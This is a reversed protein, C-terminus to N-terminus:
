GGSVDKRMVRALVRVGEDEPVGGYETRVGRVITAGSEDQEVAAIRYEDEGEAGPFAAVVREGVMQALDPDDVWELLLFGGKPDSVLFHHKPDLPGHERGIVLTEIDAGGRDSGVQDRRSNAAELTSFVPLAPQVGAAGVAEGFEGGVREGYQAMRLDVLDQLMAHFAETDEPAVSFTPRFYGEEKSFWAQADPGLNGGVWANIPNRSWYSHFSRPDVTDVDQVSKALDVTLRPRRRFIELSWGSLEELRPPTSFGENELLAQLLVMKFCRTMATREVERFFGEHRELCRAEADSMDRQDRVLAWWHGPDKRLGVLDAGARHFEAANPRRGLANQLAQYDGRVGAEQKAIQDALDVLELPFNVFCGDPLEIRGDVDMRERLHALDKLSSGVGLLLHPRQLFSRHNGIFDLVTLLKKEPHLRLGRGLQQLFLVSSETPRLMMVTDLAPLDVGENFLDVSFIVDLAGAGLEELASGRDKQSTGHVSVARFGASAFYEAMFDAHTRSACFALTRDGRKEKWEELVHGARLKTALKNELAGPDFRGNRWPIQGYDVSEDWIGWYGFPCLFGLGIAAFLDKCYVLNDDCLSLIDSRDTRNSTATLGLLFEPRCHRLLRRYSPAAAHHFEDVVVYDFLEPPFRDVHEARGLTQISAFLVDAEAEKRTGDYRGMRKGPLIRQFTQEAQLLIEERHAVFLVRDPETRAVDFASLWTKGLGTAMVVLGRRHGEARSRALADLAERQVQHPKPPLAEPEDLDWAPLPQEPPRRKEYEDIWAWTLPVAEPASFIEEFADRIETFRQWEATPERGRADVRYNWEIGEVLAMRSLNSSGIYASGHVLEGDRTRVFLYAKPHFSGRGPSYVRVQAGREVLLMLRRLAEPQTVNLYDSTLIRLSARRAQIAEALEEFILDLGSTLVFSVALDIGTAQHIERRLRPLFPDDLGGKSLASGSM